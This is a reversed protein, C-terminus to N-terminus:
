RVQINDLTLSDTTTDLNFLDRLDEGSFSLKDEKDDVLLDSLGTKSMQRQFIKEEVTGAAM